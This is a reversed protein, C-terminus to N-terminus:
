RQHAVAPSLAASASVVTTGGGDRAAGVVIAGATLAVALLAACGALQAVRWRRGAASVRRVAVIRPDAGSGEGVEGLEKSPTGTGAKARHPTAGPETASDGVGTAPAAAHAAEPEIDQAERAGSGQSASGGPATEECPTGTDTGEGTGPAM